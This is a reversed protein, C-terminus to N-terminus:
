LAEPSPPKEGSFLWYAVGGVVAAMVVPAAIVAVAGTALGGGVLGGIAALEGTGTGVLALTGLSGATGVVAGTYTGIRAMDNAQTANSYLYRNMLSAAGLGGAGSILATGTM